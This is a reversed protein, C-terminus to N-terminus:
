NADLLLGLYSRRIGCEPDLGLSELLDIAGERAPDIEEAETEVEIFEGLGAVRDLTVTYEGCRFRERAKEVTAAPEFGVSELIAVMTEGDGVGTQREERTKSASDVLPGKYTVKVSEGSEDTERRIRLAEDTEAFDRVPHDYYTDVQTVTGMPEAGIAALRERLEGHDARLKLEVEYM